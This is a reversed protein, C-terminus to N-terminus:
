ISDHREWTLRNETNIMLFCERRFNVQTCMMEKGFIKFFFSSCPGHHLVVEQEGQLGGHKGYAKNTDM